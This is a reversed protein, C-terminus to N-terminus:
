LNSPPPSILKQDLLVRMLTTNSKVKYQKRLKAMTKVVASETIHKKDAIQKMSMDQLVLSLIEKEFPKLIPKNLKSNLSGSNQKLELMRMKCLDEGIAVKKIVAKIKKKGDHKTLYAQVGVECMQDEWVSREESTLIVIPKGPFRTKLQKVNEVPETGPILLDLLIVDFSNQDITLATEISGASCSIMMDDRNGRFKSKLGGVIMWHDEISFLRIM